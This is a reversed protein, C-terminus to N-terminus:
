GRSIPLLLTLLVHEATPEGWVAQRECVQFGCAMLSALAAYNCPHVWAFVEDAGLERLRCLRARHLARGVRRRRFSPHVHDAYFLTRGFPRPPPDLAKCYGAAVLQERFYIGMAFLDGRPQLKEDFYGEPVDVGHLAGLQRRDKLTLVRAHLQQSAFAGGFRQPLRARLRSELRQLTDRRRRLRARLALPLRSLLAARMDRM